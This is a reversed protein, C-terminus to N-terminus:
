SVAGHAAVLWGRRSEELADRLEIATLEELLVFRELQEPARLV